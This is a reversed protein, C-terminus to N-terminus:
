EFIIYGDSNCVYIAKFLSLPLLGDVGAESRNPIAVANGRWITRGEIGLSKGSVMGVEQSGAETRWERNGGLGIDPEAGFLVLRSAGSDLILDGLSTAVALRGNIMRLPVRTGNPGQQKGFELRKGRLDLTYDFQSLFWQGLIGQIDPSFNHIAELGSYLFEQRDAKATDLVVENGDSGAAPTKGSALALDVEFTANMGIKRALNVDILNVNTGTDMLFRYPGHGNVFVGDVIPRDEQVRLNAANVLPTLALILAWIVATNRM